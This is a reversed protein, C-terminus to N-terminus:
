ADGEEAAIKLMRDLQEATNDREGALEEASASGPGAASGSGASGARIVANLNM